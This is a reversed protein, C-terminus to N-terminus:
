NVRKVIKRIAVTLNKILEDKVDDPIAKPKKRAIQDESNEDTNCFLLYPKIQLAVAMKEIM